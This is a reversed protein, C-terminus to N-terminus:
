KVQNLTQRCITLPLTSVELNLVGYLEELMWDLDNAYLTGEERLVQDIGKVWERVRAMDIELDRKADQRIFYENDQMYEDYDVDAYGM